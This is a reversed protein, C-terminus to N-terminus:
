HTRIGIRKFEVYSSYIQQSQTITGICLQVDVIARTKCNELYSMKSHLIRIWAHHHHHDLDEISGGEMEWEGDERESM